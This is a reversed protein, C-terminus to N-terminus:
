CSHQASRCFSALCYNGQRTWSLLFMKGAAYGYTHALMGQMAGQENQAPPPANAGPGRVSQSPPAPPQLYSALSSAGGQGGGGNYSEAVLVRDIREVGTLYSVLSRVHQEIGWMDFQVRLDVPNQGVNYLPVNSGSPQNNSM